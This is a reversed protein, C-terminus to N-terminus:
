DVKIKAQTIVKQWKELDRRMLGALDEPTSTAPELALGILRNRVDARGLAKGLDSNIREVLVKPTGAPAYMAFWGGVEYGPVGAEAVTPTDPFSSARKAGTVALARLKGSKVYTMGSMDSFMLDVHGAMLDAQAPAGGKYPVHLMDVGAMSKLLEGALHGISGSGFSAFNAQGPRARLWALLENISRMSSQPNVLVVLNTTAVLGVPAFDTLPDYSRKYLLPELVCTSSGALGITYGDAPSKALLESGVPGPRNEVVVPQGISETMAQGLSRAIIDTAGGPPFPVILKLPKTPFTQTHAAGACVAFVCSCIISLVRM